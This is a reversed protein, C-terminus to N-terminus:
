PGLSLDSLLKFDHAPLLRRAAEQLKEGSDPHRVAPAVEAAPVSVHARTWLEEDLPIGDVILIDLDITRDANKDSRRVRDLKQEIRCLVQSKLSNLDMATSVLVAANLYDPGDSGVAPNQWVGSSKLVQTHKQLARFAERLNKEPDINSGLGIVVQHPPHKDQGSL